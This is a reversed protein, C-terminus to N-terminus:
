LRNGKAGGIYEDRIQVVSGNIANETDKQAKSNWKTATLPQNKQAPVGFSSKGGSFMSPTKGSISGPPFFSSREENAVNGRRLPISSISVM